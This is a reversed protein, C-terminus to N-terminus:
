TRFSAESSGVYGVGLVALILSLLVQQQGKDEVLTM